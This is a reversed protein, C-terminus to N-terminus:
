AAHSFEVAAHCSARRRAESRASTDTDLTLYRRGRRPGTLSGCRESMLTTDSSASTPQWVAVGHAQIADDIVQLAKQPHLSVSRRM